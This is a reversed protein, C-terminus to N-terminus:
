GYGRERAHKAKQEAWWSDQQYGAWSDPDTKGVERERVRRLHDIWGMLERWGM